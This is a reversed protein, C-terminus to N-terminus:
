MFGEFCNTVVSFGPNSSYCPIDAVSAFRDESSYLGRVIGRWGDDGDYSICFSTKKESILNSLGYEIVAITAYWNDPSTCTSSKTNFEEIWLTWGSEGNPFYSLGSKCDHHSNPDDLIDNAFDYMGDLVGEGNGINENYSYSVVSTNLIDPTSCFTNYNTKYDVFGDSASLISGKFESCEEPISQTQVGQSNVAEKAMSAFISDLKQDCESSALVSQASLCATLLFPSLLM